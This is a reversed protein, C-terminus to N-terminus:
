VEGYLKEIARRTNKYRDIILQDFPLIYFFFFVIIFFPFSLRPEGGPRNEVCEEVSSKILM